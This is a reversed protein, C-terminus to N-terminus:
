KNRREHKGRLVDLAYEYKTYAWTIGRRRLEEPPLSSLFDVYRNESQSSVPGRWEFACRISINNGSAPRPQYDYEEM